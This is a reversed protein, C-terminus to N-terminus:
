NKLRQRVTEATYGYTDAIEKHSIGKQHMAHWENVMALTPSPKREKRKPPEPPPPQPPQADRRPKDADVLSQVFGTFLSNVSVGKFKAYDKLPELLGKRLVVSIRDYHKENYKRSARSRAKAAM